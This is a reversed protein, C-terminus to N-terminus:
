FASPASAFRVSANHKATLFALKWRTETRRIELEGDMGRCVPHSIRTRADYLGM